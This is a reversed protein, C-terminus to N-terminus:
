SKGTILRVAKQPGVFMTFLGVLVVFLGFCEQILMGTSSGTSVAVVLDNIADPFGPWVIYAALFYFFLAGVVHGEKRLLAAIGALVCFYLLVEM